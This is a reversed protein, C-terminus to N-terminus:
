FIPVLVRRKCPITKAAARGLVVEFLTPILTKKRTM